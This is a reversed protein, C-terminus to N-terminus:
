YRGGGSGGSADHVLWGEHRIPRQFEELIQRSEQARRALYIPPHPASSVCYRHFLQGVHLRTSVPSCMALQYPSATDRAYGNGSERKMPIHRPKQVPALHIRNTMHAVSSRNYSVETNECDLVIHIISFLAGNLIGAKRLQFPRVADWGGPSAGHLMSVNPIPIQDRTKRVRDDEEREFSSTTTFTLQGSQKARVTRTAFRKTDRVREVCYLIADESNGALVFYCHTSRVTRGESM